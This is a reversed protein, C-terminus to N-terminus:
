AAPSPVNEGAFFPTGLDTGGFPALPRLDGQEHITTTEGDAGEHGASAIGFHVGDLRQDVDTNSTFTGLTQEVVFGGIGVPQPRRQSRPPNFQDARVTTSAGALFELVTARKTTVAVTPDNFSRDGPQAVETPEDGTV